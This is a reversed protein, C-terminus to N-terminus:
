LINKKKKVRKKRLQLKLFYERRMHSNFLKLEQSVILKDTDIVLAQWQKELLKKLKGTKDIFRAAIISDLDNMSSDSRFIGHRIKLHLAVLVGFNHVSLYYSGSNVLDRYHQYLLLVAVSDFPNVSEPDAEFEAIVEKTYVRRSDLEVDAAVGAKTTGRRRVEISMALLPYAKHLRESWFGPIYEDAFTRMWAAV